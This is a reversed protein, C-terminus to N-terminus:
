LISAMDQDNSFVREVFHHLSLLSCMHRSDDVRRDVQRCANEQMKLYHDIHMLDTNQDVVEM